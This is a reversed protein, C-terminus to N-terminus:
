IRWDRSIPRPVYATTSPGQCQQPVPRAHGAYGAHTHGIQSPIKAIDPNHVFAISSEDSLRLFAHFTNEVDHLWDLAQLEMGLTDTFYEIQAKKDCTATAPHHLGDIKGM